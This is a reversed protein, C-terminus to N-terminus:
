PEDHQEPWAQAEIAQENAPPDLRSYCKRVAEHAKAGLMQKLTGVPQRHAWHGDVYLVIKIRGTQM